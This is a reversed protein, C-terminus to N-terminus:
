THYAFRKSHNLFISGIDNYLRKSKQLYTKVAAPHEGLQASLEDALKQEDAWANVLKGNEYFYKCSLDVQEYQFYDELQEGSLEFLEHLNQPQTFLSPGADFCFGDKEFSSLKGGAHANREFVNVEFGQVALRIASALGAVGSGIVAANRKRM